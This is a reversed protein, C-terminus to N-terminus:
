YYKGKTKTSTKSQNVYNQSIYSANNEELNTIKSSVSLSIAQSQNEFTMPVPKDLKSQFYELDKKIQPLFQAIKDINQSNISFVPQQKTFYHWQNNNKQQKEYTGFNATVTPGDDAKKWIGIKIM